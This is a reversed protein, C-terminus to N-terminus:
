VEHGRLRAAWPLIRGVFFRQWSWAEADPPACLVRAGSPSIRALGFHRAYLRYGRRPHVDITRAPEPDDDFVEELVRESGSTPWDRLIEDAPALDLQTRPGEPAGISPPLGPAEFSTDIELGFARARWRAPAAVAPATEARTAPM